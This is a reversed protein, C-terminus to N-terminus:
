TDGLIALVDVGQPVPGRIGRHDAQHVQEDLVGDLGVGGVDMDLGELVVQPDAVPDIPDEEIGLRGGAPKPGGHGGPDLDHGLQVDCLAAQGLVAADAYAEVTPAEVNADGGNGGDM